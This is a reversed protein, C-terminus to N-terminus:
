RRRRVSHIEGSEDFYVCYRKLILIGCTVAYCEGAAWRGIKQITGPKPLDNAKFYERIKEEM